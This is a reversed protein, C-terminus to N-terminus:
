AGGELHAWITDMVMDRDANLDTNWFRLIRFGEARLWADRLKDANSEAHQSGDLEIILGATPCYSDVIYRGMPVQRRFKHNVFRRNRLMGWLLREADTPQHRMDQARDRLVPLL